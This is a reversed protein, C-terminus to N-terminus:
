VEDEPGPEARSRAEAQRRRWLVWVGIFFAAGPMYLMVYRLVDALSDETLALGAPLPEKEPIGVLLPRAAVWGLAQEVFVRNGSLSADRFSRSEAPNSAGVIVARVEEGSGTTLRSAAAVVPRRSNNTPASETESGLRDLIVAEHSASLLPVATSGGTLELPQAAVLVVRRDLRMDASSLGSTIPHAAVEALFAEGIGQPLRQEAKRELVFGRELAIGFREALHELGSGALAGRADVIPDLLLLVSAGQEAAALLAKEHEPPVPAKPGVLAIVGCGRLALDPRPVDLPTRRAELNRIELTQRLDLLGDDAGDDISREGHGTVFCVAVRESTQVRLIAEGLAPEIRSRRQGEADLAYLEAAPVFWSRDAQRVLLAAEPLGGADLLGQADIPNKAAQEREKALLLYEAADREPDVYRVRLRPSLSQFAELMHRVDARSPHGLPLLVVVEIPSSLSALLARSAASPSFQEGTSFDWRQYSRAGLVNLEVLLLGAALVALASWASSDRAWRRGLVLLRPMRKV